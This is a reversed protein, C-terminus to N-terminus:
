CAATSLRLGSVPTSIQSVTNVLSSVRWGFVGHCTINSFYRGVAFGLTSEVISVCYESRDVTTGPKIVDLAEVLSRQAQWAQSKTSPYPALALAARSVLYAEMGPSRTGLLIDNLASMHAPSTVITKEPYVRPAFTAFYDDMCLGSLATTNDSTSMPNYTAWPDLYLVALDLSAAAIAKDLEVVDKALDGYDPSRLPKQNNARGRETLVAEDPDTEPGTCKPALEILLLKTARVYAHVVSTDNYYETHIETLFRRAVYSFAEGKSPLGFEPQSFWLTM